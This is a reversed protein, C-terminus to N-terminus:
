WARRVALADGARHRDRVFRARALQGAGRLGQQERLVTYPINKYAKDSCTGADENWMDVSQGNRVFAQFREGLGYVLEGVSLTLQERLFLGRGKKEMLGLASAPSSTLPQGRAGSFRLAWPRADVDLQLAGSRLHFGADSSRQAFERPAAEVDLKPGRPHRGRHHSVTIRFVNDLPATIRVTFMHGELTASRDSEPRSSVHLVLREPSAEAADIRALYTPTVDELMRWAGDAFRM